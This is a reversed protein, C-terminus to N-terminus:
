GETNKGIKDVSWGYVFLFRGEAFSDGDVGDGAATRHFRQCFGNADVGGDPGDWAHSWARKQYLAYM